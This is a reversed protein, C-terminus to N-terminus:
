SQPGTCTAYTKDTEWISIRVLRTQGFHGDLCKWAVSAINEVTPILQRFQPVDANLNKHDVINVFNNDVIREFDGMRFSEAANSAVTVELVYNHGHGTPNACKGFVDFNQEPSFTDNWLKHMAAFEFKESFEFMPSDESDIAVKRNPNLSLTLRSLRAQGFHGDLKARSHRLMMLVSSLSVERKNRYAAGIGDAFVPAVHKRVARDIDVVNVVFGTAPDVEGELEVLLALFIALGEGGPKSAFSNAGESTEQAFPNISFRVERGLRHMATAYSVSLLSDLGLSCSM